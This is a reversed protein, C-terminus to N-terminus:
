LGTDWHLFGEDGGVNYSVRELTSGEPVLIIACGAASQGAAVKDPVKPCPAFGPGGGLDLLILPLILTDNQDRGSTGQIDVEAEANNKFAIDVYFPTTAAEDPDLEYGAATLDKIAGQRVATVTVTGTGQVTDTASPSRFEIDVPTGLAAAEIDPIGGDGGSGDTGDDGGCGALLPALLALVALAVRATSTDMTLIRGSYGLYMEIIADVVGARM